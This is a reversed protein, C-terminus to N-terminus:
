PYNKTKNLITLQKLTNKSHKLCSKAPINKNQKPM